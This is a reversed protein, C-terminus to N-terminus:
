DRAEYIDKRSFDPSLSPGNFLLPKLETEVEQSSMGENPTQHQAALAQLFGELTMGREAAIAQLQEAAQKDIPLSVM